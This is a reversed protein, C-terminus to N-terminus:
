ATGLDQYPVSYKQKGKGLYYYAAGFAGWGVLVVSAYNMNAATVPLGLPFMSFVVVLVIWFMSVINVVYGTTKSLAFWGYEERQLKPRGYLAMFWIPMFYALYSGVIALSLVANFATVNGLYLLGLVVQLLSSVIVARVPVQLKPNVHSFYKSFPLGDDRAFAWLTRSTSALGAITGATAIVCPILSMLITGAKSGTVDLFIQMFPFGTPTELLTQLPSTSYLLLITYGFGLIGNLGVGGLMALPVNRSANPLEEALHCASDYGLMPYVASQLGILWAVGDSGWGSSNTVETFVFSSTNKHSMVGLTIMIGLLGAIHIFGAVLNTNPLTRVGYINIITAYVIVAWYFLMGQWRQRDYSENTIVILSQFQLGAAFAASATLVIQGSVSIWGTAWSSTNRFKSPALVAVWHYQGGATPYISSIEALSLVICMTGILAIIYNYFLCPAGGGILASSIVTSLAEWTAMLCLVLSGLALVSFGRNLEQKHGLQALRVEDSVGALPRSAMGELENGEKKLSDDSAM